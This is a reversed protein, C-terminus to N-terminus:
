KLYLYTIFLSVDDCTTIYTNFIHATNGIYAISNELLIYYVLIYMTCNVIIYSYVNYM